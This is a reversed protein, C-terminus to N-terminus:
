RSTGTELHGDRLRFTHDAYEASIQDHSVMLVTTGEEHAVERLLAHIAHTSATDLSATPEDAFLHPPRHALSRVLATRQAQGGSILSARVDLLDAIGLRTVLHTVWAQDVSRGTLAHGAEINDRVTLGGLLGSRQFVHGNVARFRDRAKRSLGTVETDDITIDGADPEDLASVLNLLTTKGSGSPGTLLSLVGSPVEAHVDALVVTGLYSKRVGGIRIAISM